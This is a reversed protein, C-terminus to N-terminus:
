GARSYLHNTAEHNINEVYVDGFFLFSLAYSFIYFVNCVSQGLSEFSNIFVLWFTSRPHDAALALSLYRVMVYQEMQTVEFNAWVMKCRPGEGFRCVKGLGGINVKVEKTDADKNM